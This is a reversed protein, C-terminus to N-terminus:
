EWLRLGFESRDSIVTAMYGEACDLTAMHWNNLDDEQWGSRLMRPAADPDINVDFESLGYAIGKGVAKVFAEKRTWTAFFARTKEGQYKEFEKNEAESFFRRALKEYEVDERIKEVDIGLKRDLSLAVLALGHSHSVNLSIQQDKFRRDLYPKKERTYDFQFSDASNGLVQALAQRLLGRTVVYEEFKDPFTFRGARAREEESLSAHFEELQQKPLNIVSRWIDIHGHELEPVKEAKIWQM